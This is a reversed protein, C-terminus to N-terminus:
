SIKNNLTFNKRKEDGDVDNDKRTKKAVFEIVTVMEIM